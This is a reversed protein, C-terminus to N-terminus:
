QAPSVKAPAQRCKIDGLDPMPDHEDPPEVRFECSGGHWTVHGAMGHDYGTVYTVGDYVVPFIKGNFQVQAGVPVAENDSTILRFTASRIRSLPFRAIVGNRYGPVVVLTRTDIQTDLPLETPEINIRNQQYPLMYHLLAHGNKDTHTVLQHDVYVPVDAIGDVDIMAFSDYVTRTARLDGGLLTAAGSLFISQGDIGNLSAVQADLDNATTQLHGDANYNGATSASLRYGFGSGVPPNQMVSVYVENPPAGVGNGGNASLSAARRQGMPVTLTLFYSDTNHDSMSRSAILSLNARYGVMVNYSASINRQAPLDYYDDRAYAMALSGARDMSFGVQALDRQKFQLYNSGASSVQRYGNSAAKSSLLFNLRSIHSEIGAGLLTGSKGDGASSAGIVNIVGYSGVGVAINLGLANGFDQLSEAHGEITLMSNIGRRYTASAVMHGYDNSEIAYGDRILGLDVQYQSLQPALLSLSSYFSQTLVQERGLADRIVMSVQGSGTIAPLRDIIFPGPPLSQSTVKQNNVFVDVTSPVTATGTATLLPTTILDPRLSFDKGWSIGGMRVASGWSGSSTITDGITLREIRSPFDHTFATDLRIWQTHTSQDAIASQSRAVSTNTLVGIPTFVGLETFVGSLTNDVHQVSLQYNLFAGTASPTLTPVARSEATYQMPEFADAPAQIQARQKAEDIEVNIANIAALPFYRRSEYIFPEAKPAKLRLKTFDSEELWLGNTDDRLVVLTEANDQENVIVELVAEKLMSTQAFASHMVTVSLMVACLFHVLCQPSFNISDRM